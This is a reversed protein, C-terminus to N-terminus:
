DQSDGLLTPADEWPFRGSAADLREKGEKADGELIM